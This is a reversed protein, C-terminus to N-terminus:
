ESCIITSGKESLQVNELKINEKAEIYLKVAFNKKITFGFITDYFYLVIGVLSTFIGGVSTLM